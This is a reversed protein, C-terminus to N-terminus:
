PGEFWPNAAGDDLDLSTPADEGLAHQAAAIFADMQGRTVSVSLKEGGQVRLRLAYAEGAPTLTLEELTKLAAM